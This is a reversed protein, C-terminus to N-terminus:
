AERMLEVLKQKTVKAQENAYVVGVASTLYSCNIDPIRIGWSHYLQQCQQETRQWQKGHSVRIKSIM